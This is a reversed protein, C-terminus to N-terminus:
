KRRGPHRLLIEEIRAVSPEEAELQRFHERMRPLAAGIEPSELATQVLAAIGAPTLDGEGARVGLRHHVIREANDFQDNVQPVVVMPVGLLICEKVTGMGGHVVAAAARELLPLQPAWEVVLVNDPLKPLEDTTCIGGTSLVLQWAPRERLAEVLARSLALLRELPYARMQSGFACYILRRAPDVRNWPFEGEASRELDVSPEVYFVEREHEYSRHPLELAAPCLILERMRLFPSVVESLRRAAPNALRVLTMLEDVGSRLRTLVEEIQPAYESKPNRRLYPTLLVLPLRYRYHLGLTVAGHFSSTVFADPRFARVPPDVEGRALGCLYAEYFSMWSRTGTPGQLEGAGHRLVPATGAPLSKELIPHFELGQARVVERSDPLGFYAVQHGRAELRRALKFTPFLHGEEHEIAFAIRAM